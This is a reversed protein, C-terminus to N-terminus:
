STENETGTAHVSVDYETDCLFVWCAENSLPSQDTILVCVSIGVRILESTEHDLFSKGFLRM